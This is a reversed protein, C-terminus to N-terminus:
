KNPIVAAKETDFGLEAVIQLVKRKIETSLTTSTSTLLWGSYGKDGFCATNLLNKGDTWVPYIKWTGDGILSKAKPNGLKCIEYLMTKRCHRAGNKINCYIRGNTGPEEGSTSWNIRSKKKKMSMGSNTVMPLFPLLDGDSRLLECEGKGICVHNIRLKSGMLVYRQQSLIRKTHKLQVFNSGICACHNCRPEEVNKWSWKGHVVRAAFLILLHEARVLMKINFWTLFRCCILCVSLLAGNLHLCIFKPV